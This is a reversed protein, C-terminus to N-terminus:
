FLKKKIKSFTEKVNKHIKRAKLKIPRHIHKKFMRKQYTFTGEGINRNNKKHDRCYIFAEMQDESFVYGFLLIVLLIISYITTSKM